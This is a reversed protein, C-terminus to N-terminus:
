GHIPQYWDFFAHPHNSAQLEFLCRGGCAPKLHSTIGLPKLVIVHDKLNSAATM